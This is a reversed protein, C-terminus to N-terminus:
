CVQQSYQYPVMCPVIQPIHLSRHSHHSHHNLRVCYHYLNRITFIAPTELPLSFIPPTSATPEQCLPLPYPVFPVTFLSRSIYIQLHAIQTLNIFKNYIRNLYNFNVFLAIVKM